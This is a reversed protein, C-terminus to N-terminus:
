NSQFRDYLPVHFTSNHLIFDSKYLLICDDITAGAHASDREIALPFNQSVQDKLGSVSCLHTFRFVLFLCSRAVLTVQRVCQIFRVFANGIVGWFSLIFKSLPFFRQLFLQLFDCGQAILNQSQHLCMFLQGVIQGSDMSVLVNFNSTVIRKDAVSFITIAFTAFM